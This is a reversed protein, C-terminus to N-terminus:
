ETCNLKEKSIVLSDKIYKGIIKKKKREPTNVEYERIISAKFINDCKLCRHLCGELKIVSNSGCTCISNYETIRM